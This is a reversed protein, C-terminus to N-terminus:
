CRQYVDPEETSLVARLVLYFERCIIINASSFNLIAVTDKRLGM